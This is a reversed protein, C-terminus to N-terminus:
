ILEICKHPELPEAVREKVTGIVKAIYGAQQLSQVCADAEAIPITSLLGGGVLVHVCIDAREHGPKSLCHYKNQV